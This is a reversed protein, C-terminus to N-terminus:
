HEFQESLCYMRPLGFLMIIVCTCYKTAISLQEHIKGREDNKVSSHGKGWLKLLHKSDTHDHSSYTNTILMHIHVPGYHLVNSLATEGSDSRVLDHPDCRVDSLDHALSILTLYLVRSDLTAVTVLKRLM